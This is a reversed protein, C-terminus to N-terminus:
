YRNTTYIHGWDVKLTLPYIPVRRESESHSHCMGSLELHGKHKMSLFSQGICELRLYSLNEQKDKHEHLADNQRKGGWKM